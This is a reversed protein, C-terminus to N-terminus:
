PRQGRRRPAQGEGRGPDARRRAASSRGSASARAGSANLTPALRGVVDASMDDLERAFPRRMRSPVMVGIFIPLGSERAYRVIADLDAAQGLHLANVLIGLGATVALPAEVVQARRRPSRSM